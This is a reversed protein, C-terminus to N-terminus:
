EFQSFYLKIQKMANEESFVDSTVDAREIFKGRLDESKVLEEIRDAFGKDDSPKVLFGNVGDEVVERHGRNSSAVVPVHSYQAEVLNLGVGERKSSAAYIDTISLIAPVDSRWGAFVVSDSVGAKETYARFAGGDHEPGVLVLKVKCGRDLLLKLAKILVIQNKNKILEAVYTVVTEGSKIGFERRLADKVGDDFTQSFKQKNVGMEHFIRIDKMGMKLKKANEFDEKNVTVLMDTRFSLLWEIPFYLLWNILPAGKYFHFGHAMYLVFPKKKLGKVACRSVVGGTPTHCYLVDYEGEKLIKKLQRIGSFTKFSIPNRKYVMNFQKDCYPVKEEGACAVDVTWGNDKLMKITPVHFKLIHEKAVNAVIIVKKMFSNERIKTRVAKSWATM